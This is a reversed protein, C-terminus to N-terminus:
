CNEPHQAFFLELQATDTWHELRAAKVPASYGGTASRKGVEAQGGYRHVWVRHVVHYGRQWCCGSVNVFRNQQLWAKVEPRM